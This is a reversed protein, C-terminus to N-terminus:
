DTFGILIFTLRRAKSNLAQFLSPLLSAGSWNDVAGHGDAAKDYHAGVIVTADETGRLTCILNPTRSGKVRQEVLKEQNCGVNQFLEALTRERESNKDVARDLREEIVSPALKGYEISQAAEPHM